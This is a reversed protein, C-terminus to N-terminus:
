FGFEVLRFNSSNHQQGSQSLNQISKVPSNNESNIKESEGNMKARGLKGDLNKEFEVGFTQMYIIKKQETRLRDLLILQNSDSLNILKKMIIHTSSHSLMKKLQDSHFLSEILTTRLDSRDIYAEIFMFSVEGNSLDFFREEVTARLKALLDEPFSLKLAEQLVIVGYSNSVLYNFIIVLESFLPIIFENPFSKLITVTLEHKNRHCCYSKFNNQLTDVVYKMFHIIREQLNAPTTTSSTPPSSVLKCANQIIKQIVSNNKKNEALHTIQGELASVMSVLQEETASDVMGQVVYNGCEDKMLSVFEPLIEKFIQQKIENNGEEKLTDLLFRSGYQTRALSVIKGM